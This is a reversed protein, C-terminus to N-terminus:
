AKVAGARRQHDVFGLCMTGLRMRRAGPFGRVNGEAVLQQAEARPNRAPLSRLSVLARDAQAPGPRTVRVNPDITIRVLTTAAWSVARRSDNPSVVETALVAINWRIVEKRLSGGAETPYGSDVVERAELGEHRTLV